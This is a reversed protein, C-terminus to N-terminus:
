ELLGDLTISLNTRYLDAGDYKKWSLLCNLLVKDIEDDEYGDLKLYERAGLYLEGYKKFGRHYTIAVPLLEEHTMVQLHAELPDHLLMRYYVSPKKKTTSSRMKKEIVEKKQLIKADVMDALLRFLSTRHPIVESLDDEIKSSRIWGRNKRATMWVADRPRMDMDYMEDMFYWALIEFYEKGKGKRSRIFQGMMIEFSPILHDWHYRKNCEKPNDTPGWHFGWSPEGPDIREFPHPISYSNDM